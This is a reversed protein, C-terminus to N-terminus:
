EKDVPNSKVAICEKSLVDALFDMVEKSDDLKTVMLVLDVKDKQSRQWKYGNEYLFFVTALLATRKNGDGFIHKKTIKQMIFAAKEWISPYLEQGFYIAQLQEEIISLGDEYQIGQFKEDAEDLVLRNMEIIQKSSLYIM